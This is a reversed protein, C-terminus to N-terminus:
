AESAETAVVRNRGQNKAEYLMEDARAIVPTIATEGPQHIAVGFSATVTGKALPSVSLAAIGARLKSAIGTAEDLTTNPLVICFEEGGTRAFSCASPIAERVHRAVSILAADGVAHGWHDNISKFRDLDFLVVSLPEGTKAARGLHENSRNMLWRRNGIGTLADTDAARALNYIAKDLDVLTDQVQALMVGAEDTFGTPLAPLSRQERYSRLASSTLRLPALMGHVLYLTMGTGALTALLLILLEIWFTQDFSGRVFLMFVCFAILPVHTGVFCILLIRGRYGRPWPLRNM